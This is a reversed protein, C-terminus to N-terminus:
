FKFTYDKKLMPEVIIKIYQMMDQRAADYDVRGRLMRMLMGEYMLISMNNLRQADGTSIYDEEICDLITEMNRDLIDGKKLMASVTENNVGLDEPFFAYYQNVYHEFDKSLQPFFIANYVAPKKFSYDCFCEWIKLFQDMGNHADKLYENLSLSYDRVSFMAGFFILHDLNEFYNYLTASNYRTKVAVNRISINEIGVEDMLEVTAQIFRGMIKKRKEDIMSEVGQLHVKLPWSDIFSATFWLGLPKSLYLIHIMM